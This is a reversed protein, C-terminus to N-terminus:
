NKKLVVERYKKNNWSNILTKFTEYKETPVYTKVINIKRIVHLKNGESAISVDISGFENNISFKSEPSDLRMGEPLDIVVDYEEKIPFPVELPEYRKSLLETMHWGDTGHAVAPLKMFIYGAKESAVSNTEMSFLLSTFDINMTGIAVNTVKSKETAASLMSSVYSTDKQMKFWPNLRGSLELKMNGRLSLDTNLKLNGSLSLNSKTEAILETKKSKGKSFTHVIKGALSYKVDQQDSQTPSLFVPDMGQLSVKVLFREILEPSFTKESYYRESIVAVPEAQINQSRLMATLLVAKEAETGGNSQWILHIPRLAYATNKLPIRWTNMENAVLEQLKLAKVLPNAIGAVAEAAKSKPEPTIECKFAEQDAFLALVDTSKNMALFVIGPRNQQERPRFDERLAAPLQTLVWTYSVIGGSKVITPKVPINYQEFNIRAGTPVNIKLTLKTVPSNMLLQENGMMAQSYGKASTLTYDFDIVAGRELGTHTVVMERLHNFAPINVAFGPLIENYANDPSPIQKGDAMTTVSKNVKLAQFAPNYVIFDEGYLNHFAYYTHIQLQHSYRFTWSGDTQLSYEKSVSLFTADSPMEQALLHNASLLLFVYILKNKLM